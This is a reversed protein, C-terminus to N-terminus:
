DTAERRPLGTESGGRGQCTGSTGEPRQESKEQLGERLSGQTLLVVGM